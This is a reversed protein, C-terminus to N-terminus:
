ALEGGYVVAGVGFERASGCAVVPLGAGGTEDMRLEEGVRLIAHDSRAGGIVNRAALGGM